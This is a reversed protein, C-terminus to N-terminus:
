EVSPAEPAAPYARSPLRVWGGRGAPTAPAHSSTVVVERRWRPNATEKTGSSARRKRKELPIAVTGM